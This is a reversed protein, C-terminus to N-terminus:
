CDQQKTDCGGRHWAWGLPTLVLEPTLPNESIVLKAPHELLTARVSFASTPSAELGVPIDFNKNTTTTHNMTTCVTIDHLHALQKMWTEIRTMMNSHADVLMASPSDFIISQWSKTNEDKLRQQIRSLAIKM